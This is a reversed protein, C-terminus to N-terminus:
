LYREMVIQARRKYEDSLLFERADLRILLNNDNLDLAARMIVSTALKAHARKQTVNV